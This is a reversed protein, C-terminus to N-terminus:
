YRVTSNRVWLVTVKPNDAFYGELDEDTAGSAILEEVEWLKDSYTDYQREDFAAEQACWEAWEADEDLQEQYHKYNQREEYSELKTAKQDYFWSHHIAYNNSYLVSGELQPVEAGGLLTGNWKACNPLVVEGTLRNGIIFRSGKEHKELYDRVQAPTLMNKLVWDVFQQTDSKEATGKFTSLIGNHFLIAGGGIDFGHTQELTSRGSTGLRFHVVLEDQTSSILHQRFTSECLTRFVKGTKTNWTVGGDPNYDWLSDIQKPCLKVGAKKVFLMCM